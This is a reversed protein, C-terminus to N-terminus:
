EDGAPVWLLIGDKVSKMGETPLVKLTKQFYRDQVICRIPGIWDGKLYPVLRYTVTRRSLPLLQVTSIKSGSFAFQECPELTIGFTLLHSSPNEIVVSFELMLSSPLIHTVAALVRPENGAVKLRPVPLICKNLDGEINTGPRHWTLALSVDIAATGRDELSRRQTRVMFRTEEIVKPSILLEHKSPEPIEIDCHLDDNSSDVIMQVNSVVLDQSAFSAYRAILCWQQALGMPANAGQAEQQHMDRTDFLSPWAAMDLRPLFECNAEFPNTIELQTTASCYIKTPLDTVLKYTTQADIELATPQQLRSLHIEITDVVDVGITGLNLSMSNADQDDIKVERTSKISFAPISNGRFRLSLGVECDTDEANSIELLVCIKEEVYFNSNAHSFSLMLKPPKPLINIATPDHRFLRRKALNSDWWVDQVRSQEISQVYHLAFPAGALKCVVSKARVSGAVRLPLNMEFIASTFPKITIQANLVGVLLLMPLDNSTTPIDDILSETLEVKTLTSLADQAITPHSRLVVKTAMDVFDIIIESLFIPQSDQMALSTISLQSTCAEGVHTEGDEFVFSASLFSRIQQDHITTTTTQIQTAM